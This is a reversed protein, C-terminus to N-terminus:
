SLNRELWRVAFPLYHRAEFLEGTCNGVPATRPHGAALYAEWLASFYDGHPWEVIGDVDDLGEIEVEGHGKWLYRRLVTRKEPLRAHYEALHTLTVTNTDAGLRLVWGGMATFRDTVSGPGHYDHLPIPELVEEALPGVAGFRGAPHDNVRTGPRNRFVEALVGMDGEVPTTLPDFPTSDDSGLIMVLTGEPGLLEELTDLVTDAGGVVPGLKRLGAHVMLLMGPRVGLARLDHALTARSVPLTDPTSM